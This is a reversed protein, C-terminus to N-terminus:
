LYPTNERIGVEVEMGDGYCILYVAGPERTNGPSIWEAEGINGVSARCWIEGSGDVEVVDGDEVRKWNGSSDKIELYNFESNLYKLPNRGNYNTNGVAVLPVNLSNSGTGETRLGPTRGEEVIKLYLPSYTDWADLPHADFDITIYEDPKKRKQIAFLENYKEIVEAVPRLTWDPNIIGADSNEGVRFGGPYWWPACGKA